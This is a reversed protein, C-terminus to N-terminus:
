LTKVLMTCGILAILVGTVLQMRAAGREIAPLRDAFAAGFARRAVIAGLAVAGITTAIGATLSVLAVGVMMSTSQVWAFGLVSITLPCPLLGIGATLAHSGDHGHRHPRLAQWIILLGAVVVLGYGFLTFTPSGRGTISPAQNLAFRLILFAVFGSFVHILSATLAVRIGKGARGGTGLFYAILAAKGHGPTLAHIAGLMFALAAAGLGGSRLESALSRLVGSQIQSLAGWLMEIM